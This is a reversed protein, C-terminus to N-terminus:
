KLYEALSHVVWYIFPVAEATENSDTGVSVELAVSLVLGLFLFLGESHLEWLACRTSHPKTGSFCRVSQKLACSKNQIFNTKLFSCYFIQSPFLMFHAEWQTSKNKTQSRHSVIHSFSFYVMKGILFIGLCLIKYWIQIGFLFSMRLNAVYVGRKM